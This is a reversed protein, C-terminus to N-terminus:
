QHELPIMVIPQHASHQVSRWVCVQFVCGISVLLFGLVVTFACGSFAFLSCIFGSFCEGQPLQMVGTSIGSIIDGLLYERVRYHPLWKLIPLFNYLHSKAKKSSCSFICLLFFFNSVLLPCTPQFSQREEKHLFFAGNFAPESWQRCNRSM